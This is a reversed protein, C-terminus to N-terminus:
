STITGSGVEPQGCVVPGVIAEQLIGRQEESGGCVPWESRLAELCGRADDNAGTGDSRFIAAVACCIQEYADARKRRVNDEGATARMSEAHAAVSGLFTMLPAVDGKAEICFARVLCVDLLLDSHAQPAAGTVSAAGASKGPLTSGHCGALVAAWRPRAAESQGRTELRWLLGLANLQVQPDSHMAEEGPAWLHSDFIRLSTEYERKEVHLLALHWWLHTYLFPHMDEKRWQSSKEDLFKFSEELRGAGQFYLAHAFSHHLWADEGVEDVFKLGERAKDEAEQFRGNQELGFSWMGHLYRQPLLAPLPELTAERLPMAAREAIQLILAGDGLILGMIQGRKVAFLDAPYESVVELLKTHTAAADSRVVWNRWAEAYFRERESWKEPPSMGSGALSELHSTAAQVDGQCFACDAALVRALPCLADAAVAADSAASWAAFPRYALVASVYANIAAICETSKTTVPVGFCDM